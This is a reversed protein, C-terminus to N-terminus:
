DVYGRWWHAGTGYSYVRGLETEEALDTPSNSTATQGYYSIGDGEFDAAPYLIVPETLCDASATDIKATPYAIGHSRADCVPVAVDSPGAALALQPVAVLLVLMVPVYIRKKM